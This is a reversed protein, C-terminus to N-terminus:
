KSKEHKEGNGCRRKLKKNEIYVNEEEGRSIKHHIDDDESTIKRRFLKGQM